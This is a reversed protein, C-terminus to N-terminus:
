GVLLDGISYIGLILILVLIRNLIPIAILSIEGINKQM